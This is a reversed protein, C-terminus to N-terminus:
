PAEVHVEQVPAAPGSFLAELTAEIADGLDELAQEISKTSSNGGTVQALDDTRLERTSITSPKRM